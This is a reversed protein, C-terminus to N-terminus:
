PDFFHIKLENKKKFPYFLLLISVNQDDMYDERAYSIFVTHTLMNGSLFLFLSFVSM